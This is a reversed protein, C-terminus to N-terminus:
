KVSEAGTCMGRTRACIIIDRDRDRVEKPQGVCVSGFGCGVIVNQESLTWHGFAFLWVRIRAEFHQKLLTLVLSTM